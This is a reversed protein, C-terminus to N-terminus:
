YAPNMSPLLISNFDNTQGVETLKGRFWSAGTQTVADVDLAEFLPVPTPCRLLDTCGDRIRHTEAISDDLNVRSGVKSYQVKEHKFMQRTRDAPTRPRLNVTATVRDSPVNAQNLAAKAQDIPVAIAASNSILMSFPGLGTALLRFLSRSALM